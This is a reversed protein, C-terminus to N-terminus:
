RYISSLIYLIEYYSNLVFRFFSSSIVDKSSQAHVFGLELNLHSPLSSTCGQKVYKKGPVIHPPDRYHFGGGYQLSRVPFLYILLRCRLFTHVVIFVTFVVTFFPSPFRSAWPVFFFADM